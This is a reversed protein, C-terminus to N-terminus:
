GTSPKSWPAHLARWPGCRSAGRRAGLRRASARRRDMGPLSEEIAERTLGTWAGVDRERSCRSPTAGRRGAPACLEATQRARVLDSCWVAGIEVLAAAAARAQATGTTSLPPDAHGQWRGAANWTSEGHRLLLLRAPTRDDPGSM